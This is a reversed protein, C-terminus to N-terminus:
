SRGRGFRARERLFSALTGAYSGLLVDERTTVIAAVRALLVITALSAAVTIAMQPAHFVGAFAERVMMAVNVVPVLALTPTFVLGRNGLTMTPLLILMYFPTVMSQGERFTRAFAAFLMMGAAVFGALLLAGLAVVPVAGLPMTFVVREDSGMLPGLVGRVTLLMGAVNLVGALCGFTVVSLYKAIVLAERPPAMTLLTEWTGREREGATADVAPYFCGVAVMIVFFLPVMMGLVLTGMQESTATNTMDIAFGAWEAPTVGRAATQERLWRNRYTDLLRQLRDRAATSRERSGDYVIRARLGPGTATDASCQLVADLRGDRLWVAADGDAPAAEIAVRPAARLERELQAHAAPLGTVVIRSTLDDTQGRVFTIGTFMVWLMAPYLVIPMLVSTMVITRERLASRLEMRYLAWTQPHLLVSMPTTGAM